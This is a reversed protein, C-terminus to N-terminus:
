EKRRSSFAYFGPSEPDRHWFAAPNIYKGGRPRKASIARYNDFWREVPVIGNPTANGAPTRAQYDSYELSV